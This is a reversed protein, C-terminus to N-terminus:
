KKITEFRAAKGRYFRGYFQLLVDLMHKGADQEEQKSQFKELTQGTKEKAVM